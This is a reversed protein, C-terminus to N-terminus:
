HDTVTFKSGQINLMGCRGAARQRIGWQIRYRGITKSSTEFGKAALGAAIQELSEGDATRQMIEDRWPEIEHKSNPAMITAPKYQHLHLPRLKHSLLPSTAQPDLSGCNDARWSTPHFFLREDKRYQKKQSLM